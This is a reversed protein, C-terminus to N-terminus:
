LMEFHTSLESMELHTSTLIPSSHPTVSQNKLDRGKRPYKRRRQQIWKMKKLAFYYNPEESAYSHTRENNDQPKEEYVIDYQQYNAIMQPDCRTIEFIEIKHSSILRCFSCHLKIINRIKELWDWPLKNQFKYLGQGKKLVDVNKNSILDRGTFECSYHFKLCVPKSQRQGKKKSTSM